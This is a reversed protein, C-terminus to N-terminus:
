KDSCCYATSLQKVPTCTYGGLCITPDKTCNVANENRDVMVTRGPCYNQCIVLPPPCPAVLCQLPKALCYHFKPCVVGACPERCVCRTCNNCDTEFGYQCRLNCTCQPQVGCGRQDPCDVPKIVCIQKDPCTVNRCPEICNCTYCGYQDLAIGYACKIHKICEPIECVIDPRIVQADCLLFVVLLAGLQLCTKMNKQYM